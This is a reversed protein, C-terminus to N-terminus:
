NDGIELPTEEEVAAAAAAEDKYLIWYRIPLADTFVPSDSHGLFAVKSTAINNDEVSWSIGSTCLANDMTCGIIGKDGFNTFWNLKPIYDSLQFSARPQIIVRNTGEGAVDAAGSALKINGPTMEVLTGNIAPKAMKHKVSGVYPMRQGNHEPSWTERGETIELGSKTAGLIDGNEMHTNVLAALFETASAYQTVDIGKALIGANLAYHQVTELTTPHLLPINTAVESM